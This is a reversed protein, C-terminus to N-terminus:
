GNSLREVLPGYRFRIYLVVCCVCPIIWDAEFLSRRSQYPWADWLMGM